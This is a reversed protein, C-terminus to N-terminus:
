LEPFRAEHEIYNFRTFAAFRLWFVFALVFTKENQSFSRVLRDIDKTTAKVNKLLSDPSMKQSQMQMLKEINEPDCIKCAYSLLPIHLKLDFFQDLSGTSAERMLFAFVTSLETNSTLLQQQVKESIKSKMLLKPILGGAIFKIEEDSRVHEMLDNM